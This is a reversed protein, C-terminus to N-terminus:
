GNPDQDADCTGPPAGYLERIYDHAFRAGLM